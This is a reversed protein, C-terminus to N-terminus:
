RIQAMDTAVTKRKWAFAIGLGILYISIGLMMAYPSGRTIALVVSIVAGMVSFAGNVAWMWPVYEPRHNRLVRMGTPLPM